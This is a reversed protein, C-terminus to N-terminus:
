LAQWPRAQGAEVRALFLLNQHKVMLELRVARRTEKRLETQLNQLHEITREFEM